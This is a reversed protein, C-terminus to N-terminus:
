RFLLLPLLGGMGGGNDDGGFGGMLIILLIPDIGTGTTGSSGGLLLLPLMAGMGGGGTRKAKRKAAVRGIDTDIAAVKQNVQDLRKDIYTVVAALEIDTAMGQIDAAASQNGIKLGVSKAAGQSIAPPAVPPLQKTVEALKAELRDRRRQPNRSFLGM